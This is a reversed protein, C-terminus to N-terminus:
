HKSKIPYFLLPESQTDQDLQLDLSIEETRGQGLFRALDQGQGLDQGLYQSIEQTNRVRHTPATIRSPRIDCVCYIYMM